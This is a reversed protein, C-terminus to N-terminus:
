RRAAAANLLATMVLTASYAVAAGALGARPILALNIVLGALGAIVGTILPIRSRGAMVLASTVPVAALSAVLGVAIISVVPAAEVFQGGIVSLVRSPFLALVICAPLCLTLSLRSVIEFQRALDDRMGTALAGAIAPRFAADFATSIMTTLLATRQAVGYHATAGASIFTFILFIDARAFIRGLLAQGWYPLGVRLLEAAHREVPKGKARTVVQRRYVAYALAASCFIAATYAATVSTIGPERGLTLFVAVSVALKVAPEIMLRIATLYRQKGLGETSSLFIDALVSAPLALAAIQFFQEIGPRGLAGAFRDNFAIVMAALLLSLPLCLLTAARVVAKIEVFKGTANLGAVSRVTARELGLKGLTLVVELVGVGFLYLGFSAPGYTKTIFLAFAYGLVKDFALGTFRISAQRNVRGLEASAPESM